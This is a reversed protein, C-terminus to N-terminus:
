YLLGEELNGECLERLSIQETELTKWKGDRLTGPLVLGRRTELRSGKGSGEKVYRESDVGAWSLDGSLIEGKL